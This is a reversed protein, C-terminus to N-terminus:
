MYYPFCKFKDSGWKTNQLTSAFDCIIKICSIIIVLNSGHSNWIFPISWFLCNTLDQIGIICTDSNNCLEQIKSLEKETLCTVFKLHGRDLIYVIYKIWSLLKKTVLDLIFSRDTRLTNEKCCSMNPWRAPVYLM